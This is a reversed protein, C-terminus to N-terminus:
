FDKPVDINQERRIAEKEVSLLNVSLDERLRQEILGVPMGLCGQVTLEYLLCSGEKDSLPSIRWAGEFRRFDGKLMHFELNGSEKAEILEIQVQASFQMGILKQTGVQKLQVKNEKRSIIESSSLNPIFRSLEEYDTLVEWLTVPKISTRLKAALRRTGRPLKEMTQQITQRKLHLSGIEDAKSNGDKIKRKQTSTM